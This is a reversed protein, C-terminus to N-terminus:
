EGRLRRELPNVAAAIERRQRYSELASDDTVAPAGDRMNKLAKVFYGELNRVHSLRQRRSLYLMRRHVAQCRWLGFEGIVLDPREVKWYDAMEGALTHTDLDRELDRPPSDKSESVSSFESFPYPHPRSLRTRVRSPYSDPLESM